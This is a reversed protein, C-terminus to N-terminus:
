LASNGPSLTHWTAVSHCFYLWHLLLNLARAPTFASVPCQQPSGGPQPSFQAKWRRGEHKLSLRFVLTNASPLIVKCCSCLFTLLNDAGSLRLPTLCVCCVDQLQLDRVVLTDWWARAGRGRVRVVPRPLLSRRAVTAAHM